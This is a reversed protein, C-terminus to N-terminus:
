IKQKHTARLHQIKTECDVRTQALEAETNAYQAKATAVKYQLERIKKEEEIKQATLVENREQLKDIEQQLTSTM